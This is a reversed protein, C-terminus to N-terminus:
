ENKFCNLLLFLEKLFSVVQPLIYLVDKLQESSMGWHSDNESNESQDKNEKVLELENNWMMWDQHQKSEENLLYYVHTHNDVSYYAGSTADFVFLSVNLVDNKCNDQKCYVMDVDISMEWFTFANSSGIVEGISVVNKAKTIINTIGYVNTNGDIRGKNMSNMVTANVNGHKTGNVCYLGCAMENTASINGKNGSNIISLIVSHQQSSEIMGILGGVYNWGRVSENNTSNCIMVNTNNCEVFGGVFGGFCSEMVMEDNNMMTKSINTESGVVQNMTKLVVGNNTSNSIVINLVQSDNFAEAFGNGNIIKDDTDNTSHNKANIGEIILGFFGGVNSKGKITGMNIINLLTLSANKNKGASGFVGGVSDIGEVDGNNVCNVISINVKQNDEIGGIMGGIRSGFHGHHNLIIGNNTSQDATINIDKNNHLWGIIGGTVHNGSVSACNTTNFIALTMQTNNFCAGVFGGSGGDQGSIIGYNESKKFYVDVLTTQDIQGIFGGVQYSGSVNGKNTCNYFHIRSGELGELKGIFGGVLRKGKVQAENTVNILSLSGTATVCLSGAIDGNFFCTSDIILNDIIALTVNCFVAADNSKKNNINDMVLGKIVHGNGHLTGSYPICGGNPLTGLPQSLNTQSFDLDDTIDINVLLASGSVVSFLNILEQANSVTTADTYSALTWVIMVVCLQILINSCM